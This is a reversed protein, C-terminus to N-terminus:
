TGRLDVKWLDFRCSPLRITELQDFRTWNAVNAVCGAYGLQALNRLIARISKRCTSDVALCIESMKSSGESGLFLGQASSDTGSVSKVPGLELVWTKRM